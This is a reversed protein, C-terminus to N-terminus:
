GVEITLLTGEGKAARFEASLLGVVYLPKYRVDPLYNMDGFRWNKMPEMPWTFLVPADGGPTYTVPCGRAELRLENNVQLTEIRELDEDLEFQGGDIEFRGPWFLPVPTQLLLKEVDVTEFAYRVVLQNSDVADIDFRIRAHMFDLHLSAGRDTHECRRRLPYYTAKVPDSAETSTGDPQIPLGHNVVMEDPFRGGVCDVGEWGTLVVANALPIHNRMRNGGGVILGAQQHYASIGSQRETNYIHNTARPLDTQCASVALTWDGARRVLGGGIGPPGNFIFTERAGDVEIPMPQEDGEEVFRHCDLMFDTAAFLYWNLAFGVPSKGDTVGLEELRAIQNRVLRRGQPTRTFANAAMAVAFAAIYAQRGDFVDIPTGDPYAARIAFEIAKFLPERVQEDNSFRYYLDLAAIHTRHYNPSPGQGRRSEDWYGDVTQMACVQRALFQGSARWNANDYVQGARYLLTARWAQHNPACCVYNSIRKMGDLHAALTRSWLSHAEAGIEDALWEACEMLNYPIWETGLLAADREDEARVNCINNAARVIIDLLKSDGRYPNGPFENKYFWALPRLCHRYLEDKGPECAFVGRSEDFLELVLPINALIRRGYWERLSVGNDM